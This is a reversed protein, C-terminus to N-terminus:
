FDITLLDTSADRMHSTDNLVHIVYGKNTRELQNICCNGQMIFGFRDLGLELCALIMLKNVVRHSFLAVTQGDHRAAIEEVAAFSRKSVEAITNGGPVRLSQPVSNWLAHEKPWQRVVEDESKGTWDGYDFDILGDHTAVAMDHGGLGIQATEAARLLPSTYAADIKVSELAVAVQGAQARGNKNLEIDFSGRFIKDRNWPTEGHRILYLLTSM